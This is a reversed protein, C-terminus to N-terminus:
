ASTACKAATPATGGARARTRAGAEGGSLGALRRFYNAPSAFLRKADAQLEPLSAGAALLALLLAAM